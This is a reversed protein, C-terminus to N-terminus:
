SEGLLIKRLEPWVLKEIESPERLMEFQRLAGKITHAYYGADYDSMPDSQDKDRKTYIFLCEDSKYNCHLEITVGDKNVKGSGDENMTFTVNLEKEIKKQASKIKMSEGMRKLIEDIIIDKYALSYGQHLVELCKIVSKDDLTKLHEKFASFQGNEIFHNIEQNDFEDSLKNM